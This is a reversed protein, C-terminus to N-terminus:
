ESTEAAESDAPDNSRLNLGAVTLGTAIMTLSGVTKSIYLNSEKIMDEVKDIFAEVESAM